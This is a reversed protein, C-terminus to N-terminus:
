GNSYSCQLLSVSDQIFFHESLRRDKPKVLLLSADPTQLSHALYCVKCVYEINLFHIIKRIIDVVKLWIILQEFMWSAYNFM